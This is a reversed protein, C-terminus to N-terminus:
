QNEAWRCTLNAANTRCEWCSSELRCAISSATILFTAFGSSTLISRSSLSESAGPGAGLWSVRSLTFGSWITISSLSSSSGPQATCCESGDCLKVMDGQSSAAPVSWIIISWLSTAVKFPFGSGASLRGVSFAIWCVSFEAMALAVTDSPCWIDWWDLTVRKRARSLHIGRFSKRWTLQKGGHRDNMRERSM